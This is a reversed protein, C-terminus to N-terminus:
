PFSMSDRLGQNACPGQQDTTSRGGSAPGGDASAPDGFGSSRRIVVNPPALALASRTGCAPRSSRGRAFLAPAFLMNLNSRGSVDPSAIVIGIAERKGSQTM